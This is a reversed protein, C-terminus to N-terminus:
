EGEISNLWVGRGKVFEFDHSGCAPCIIYVHAMEPVFHISERENEDLKGLADSFAWEVGCVRCKLIAKEEEFVIKAGSIIPDRMNVIEKLAFEFIDAEIQQLEGMKINIGTIKGFEEKQAASIATAVVGEALAWEHM